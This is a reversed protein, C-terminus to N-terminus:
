RKRGTQSALAERDLSRLSTEIHAIEGAYRNDNQRLSLLMANLAHILLIEFDHGVPSLAFLRYNLGHSLRPLPHWNSAYSSTSTWKMIARARTKALSV